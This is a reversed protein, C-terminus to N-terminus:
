NQKIRYPGGGNQGRVVPGVCSVAWLPQPGRSARRECARLPMYFRAAAASIFPNGRSLFCKLPVSPPSPSSSTSNTSPQTSSRLPPGRPPRGDDKREWTRTRKKKKEPAINAKRPSFARPGLQNQRPAPIYASTLVNSQRRGEKVGKAGGAQLTSAPAASNIDRRRGFGKALVQAAPCSAGPRLNKKKKRDRKPELPRGLHKIKEKGAPEKHVSSATQEVESEGSLPARQPRRGLSTSHAVVLDVHIYMRAQKLKTSEHAANEPNM